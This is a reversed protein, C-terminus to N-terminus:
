QNQADISGWAALLLDCLLADRDEESSADLDDVVRVVLVANSLRDLSSEYPEM